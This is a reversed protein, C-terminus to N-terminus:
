CHERKEGNKKTKIRNSTETRKFTFINKKNVCGDENELGFLISDTGMKSEESFVCTNQRANYSPEGAPRGQYGEKLVKCIQRWAM